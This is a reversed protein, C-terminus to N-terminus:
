CLWMSYMIIESRKKVDYNDNERDFKENWKKIYWDLNMMVDRVLKMKWSKWKM